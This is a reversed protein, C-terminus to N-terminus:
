KQHLGGVITKTLLWDEAQTLVGIATNVNMNTQSQVFKQHLGGVLFQDLLKGGVTTKTLLWDEVQILDRIAAEVNINLQM